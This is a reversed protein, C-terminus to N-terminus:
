RYYRNLEITVYLFEMITTRNRSVESIEPKFFLCVGGILHIM